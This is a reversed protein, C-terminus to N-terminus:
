IRQTKPKSKSLNRSTADQRHEATSKLKLIDKHEEIGLIGFVRKYASIDNKGTKTKQKANYKDLYYLINHGNVDVAFPDAGFQIFIDFIDFRGSEVSSMLLTKGSKDVPINPNM